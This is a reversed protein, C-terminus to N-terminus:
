AVGGGSMQLKLTVVKWVQNSVSEARETDSPRTLFGVCQGIFTGNRDNVVFAKAGESGAAQANALALLAANAPSAQHLTFEASGSLDAEQVFCGGGDGDGDPVATFQDKALALKCFSGMVKGTLSIGGYTMDVLKQSYVGFAM